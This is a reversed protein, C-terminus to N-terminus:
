YELGLHKTGLEELKGCLYNKMCEISCFDIGEVIVVDKSSKGISFNIWTVGQRTNDDLMFSLIDETERITGCIDCKKVTM